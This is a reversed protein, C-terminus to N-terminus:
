TVVLDTDTMHLLVFSTNGWISTHYGFQAKMIPGHKVAGKGDKLVKIFLAIHEHGFSVDIM